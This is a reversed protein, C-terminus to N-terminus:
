KGSGEPNRFWAYGLGVGASFILVHQLDHILEHPLALYPLVYAASLAVVISVLTGITRLPLQQWKAARKQLIESM